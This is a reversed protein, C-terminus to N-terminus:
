AVRELEAGVDPLLEPGLRRCIRAPESAVLLTATHVRGLGELAGGRTPNHVCRSGHWVTAHAVADGRRRTHAIWFLGLTGVHALWDRERRVPRELWVLGRDLLWAELAREGEEFGAPLRLDGADRRWWRAHPRRARNVTEAWADLDVLAARDPIANLPVELISSLAAELCNGLCAADYRSQFVPVM